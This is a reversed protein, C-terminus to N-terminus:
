SIIFSVSGGLANKTRYIRYTTSVGFTNPVDTTITLYKYTGTGQNYGEAVGAMGVGLNTASDKIVSPEPFSAPMVLYKYNGAAWTNSGSSSSALASNGLNAIDNAGITLNANTGWFWKWKWTVTYISPSISGGQTNQGTIEWKYSAPANYM